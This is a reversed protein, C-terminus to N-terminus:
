GNRNGPVSENPDLPNTPFFPPAVTRVQEDFWRVYDQIAGRFAQVGCSASRFTDDRFECLIHVRGDPTGIIFTKTGDFMEGRNTLFDFRSFGPRTNSAKGIYLERDIIDFIDADSLEAFSADWLADASQILERFRDTVHFLSCHHDRINGICIEAVHIRLRGFGGWQPGSPEHYAEIAFDKPNGFTM